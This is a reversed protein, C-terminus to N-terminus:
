TEVREMIDAYFLGATTIVAHVSGYTGMQKGITAAAEECSEDSCVDLIVYQLKGKASPFKIKFDKLM